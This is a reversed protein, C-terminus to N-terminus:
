RRLSILIRLGEEYSPAKRPKDVHDGSRKVCRTPELREAHIRIPRDGLTGLAPNGPAALHDKGTAFPTKSERMVVIADRSYDCSRENALIVMERAHLDATSKLDVDGCATLLLRFTRPNANGKGARPRATGGGRWHMWM